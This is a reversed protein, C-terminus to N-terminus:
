VIQVRRKTKKLAVLLFLTRAIEMPVGRAWYLAEQESSINDLESLYTQALKTKLEVGEIVDRKKDSINGSRAHTIKNTM